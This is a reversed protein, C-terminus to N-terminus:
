LFFLLSLSLSPLLPSPFSPPVFFYPSPFPQHDYRSPHYRPVCVPRASAPDPEDRVSLHRHLPLQRATRLSLPADLAAGRGLVGDRGHLHLQHIAVDALSQEAARGQTAVRHRLHVLDSSCVDSSWDSIRM